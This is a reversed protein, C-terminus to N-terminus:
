LLGSKEMLIQFDAESDNVIDQYDENTLNASLVDDPIITIDPLKSLQEYNKIDICYYNKYTKRVIQTIDNQHEIIKKVSQFCEANDNILNTIVHYVDEDDYYEKVVTNGNIDLWILYNKDEEAKIDVGFNGKFKIVKNYRVNFKPRKM